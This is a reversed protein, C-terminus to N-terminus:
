FYFNVLTLNKIVNDSLIVWNSVPGLTHKRSWSILVDSVLNSIDPAM